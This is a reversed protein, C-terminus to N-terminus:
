PRGGRAAADKLAVRDVKGNALLPLADRTEYHDPRMHRPLANAAHARVADIDITQDAGPVLVAHIEEGWHSSPAPVVCADAVGPAARLADEVEYPSVNEGGRIILEKLRATVQLCGGVLRGLDGTRLWGDHTVAAATAEPDDVYGSMLTPGRVWIEGVGNGDVDSGTEPDVIRVAVGPLPPGATTFALDAPEDGRTVAITPAFETQGYVMGMHDLGMERVARACLDPPLFAGGAIGVRLSPTATATAAMRDLLNAYMTPVGEIVTCNTDVIRDLVTDTQFRHFGVWAADQVLSLILGTSLGQRTSCRCRRPSATM